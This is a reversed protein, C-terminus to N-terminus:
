VSLTNVTKLVQLFHGKNTGERFKKKLFSRFKMFTSIRNTPNLVKEVPRAAARTNDQSIFNGERRKEGTM